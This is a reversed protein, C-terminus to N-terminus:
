RFPWVNFQAARSFIAVCFSIIARSDHQEMMVAPGTAGFQGNSSIGVM